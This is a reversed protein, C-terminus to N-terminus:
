QGLATAPGVLKTEHPPNFSSVTWLLLGGQALGYGISGVALLLFFAIDEPNKPLTPLPGHQSWLWLGGLGTLGAALLCLKEHRSKRFPILVMSAVNLYAFWGLRVVQIAAFLFLIIEHLEKDEFPGATLHLVTAWILFLLGGASQARVVAGATTTRTEERLWVLAESLKVTHAIPNGIVMWLVILMALHPAIPLIMICLFDFLLYKGYVKVFEPTRPMTKAEGM